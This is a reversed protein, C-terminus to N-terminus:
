ASCCALLGFDGIALAVRERQEAAADLAALDFEHRALAHDLRPTEAGLVWRGPVRADVGCNAECELRGAVSRAEDDIVGADRRLPDFVDRGSIRGEVLIRDGRVERFALHMSVKTKRNCAGRGVKASSMVSSSRATM